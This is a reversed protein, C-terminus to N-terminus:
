VRARVKKKSSARTRAAPKAAPQASDLQQQRKKPLRAFVLRYSESIFQRLESDPLTNFQELAVWQARAM